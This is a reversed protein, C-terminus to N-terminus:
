TSLLKGHVISWSKLSCHSYAPSAPFQHFIRMCKIDQMAEEGPMRLRCSYNLLSCNSTPFVQSHSQQQALLFPYHQLSLLASHLERISAGCHVANGQYLRLVWLGLGQHGQAPENCLYCVYVHTNSYVMCFISGGRRLFLSCQKSLKRPLHGIIIGTRKVAVAYRDHCNHPERECVLEEGVAAM